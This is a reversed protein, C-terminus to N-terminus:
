ILELEDDWVEAESPGGIECIVALGNDISIIEFVRGLVEEREEPEYDNIAPDNWRVLDGKKFEREMTKTKKTLVFTPFIFSLEM